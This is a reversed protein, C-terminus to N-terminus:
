AAGAPELAFSYGHLRFGLRRYFGHGPERRLNASLMAKYCGARRAEAVLHSVLCRGIGGGRWDRDVVVNEIVALPAQGHAPNAIVILSATGVVRQTAGVECLYCRYAHRGEAEDLFTAVHDPDPRRSQHDLQALLDAVVPADSREAPRVVPRSM